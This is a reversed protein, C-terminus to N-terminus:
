WIWFLLAWAFDALCAGALVAVAATLRRAVAGSHVASVKWGLWVSWLTAGALIAVRLPGVWGTYLGEGRLMTVTLSSLGLFVGAGALPILSQALHHFRAWSWGGLARTGLALLGSLLSGMVIATAGIYGLLVAGDLLTMVDNQSPYDTLLWWPATWEVPWAM